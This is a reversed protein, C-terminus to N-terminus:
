YCTKRTVKLQLHFWLKQLFRIITGFILIYFNLATRWFSIIFYKPVRILSFFLWFLIIVIMDWKSTFKLNNCSIIIWIIQEINQIFICEFLTLKLHLLTSFKLSSFCTFHNNGIISLLFFHLYQSSILYYLNKTSRKLKQMKQYLLIFYWAIYNM